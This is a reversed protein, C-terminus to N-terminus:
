GIAACSVVDEVVNGDIYWGDPMHVMVGVFRTIVTAKGGGARGKPARPQGTEVDVFDDPPSVLCVTVENVEKGKVKGSGTIKPQSVTGPKDLRVGQAKFSAISKRAGALAPGQGYKTLGPHNPDLAREAAFLADFWGLLAQVPDETAFTPSAQAPTSPTASEGLQVPKSSDSCAAGVAVSLLLAAIM